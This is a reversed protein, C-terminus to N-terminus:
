PPGRPFSGSPGTSGSNSPVGTVQDGWPDYDYDEEAIEPPVESVGLWVDEMDTTNPLDGPHLGGETDQVLARQKGDKTAKLEM